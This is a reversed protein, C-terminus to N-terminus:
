SAKSNIEPVNLHVVLACYVKVLFKAELNDFSLLVIVLSDLWRVSVNKLLGQSVTWGRIVLCCTMSGIRM